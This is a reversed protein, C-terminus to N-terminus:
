ACLYSPLRGKQGRRLRFLPTYQRAAEYGTVHMAVGGTNGGRQRREQRLIDTCQLCNCWQGGRGLRCFRHQRRTDGTAEESMDAGAIGFDRHYFCDTITPATVQVWDHVLQLIEVKGQANQRPVKRSGGGM